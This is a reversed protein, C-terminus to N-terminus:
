EMSGPLLRQVTGDPYGIFAVSAMGIFLGNDVVGVIRNIADHLQAPDDIRGFACDAIYNGNDTLYFEGNERRRLAPLCGLRQLRNMTWEHAFPVIEIPLPYGGLKDVLKGSDAVVILKRSAAAVIKERLLAGGGGKILRLQRDLEDAGDITVDIEKVDGFAIFPIGLERAQQESRISTAVAQIRLGEKVREGIKQIAWYATSGTGLGVIMGDAIEDVAREAAMKKTDM